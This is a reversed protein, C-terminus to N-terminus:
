GPDPPRRRSPGLMLAFACLGLVPLAREEAIALVWAHAGAILTWLMPVAALHVLTRGSALLLLGLTFLATPGPDLGIVRTGALGHGAVLALLPYGVLAYAILLWAVRGAWGAPRSFAIRPRVVLSWALLLAEVGFLAGYVPAMFNIAAFVQGHFVVGTWAWGAALVVGVLRM